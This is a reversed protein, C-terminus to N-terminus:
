AYVDEMLHQACWKESRITSPPVEKVSSVYNKKFPEESTSDRLVTIETTYKDFTLTHCVSSVYWVGDFNSNFKRLDVVGGPKIGATGTLEINASFTFKNRTRAELHGEAYSASVLNLALQDTFRSELARGLGSGRGETTVTVLNGSSDMSSIIEDNSNGAATINGFTGRFTLVRGPRMKMDRSNAVTELLHMSIQRGVARYRDFVHIHTEHLTVVYGLSDAVRVLFEWDSEESQVLRVYKFDDEPISYSYQYKEALEKVVSHLTPEEWAKTVKGKMDYSAGLCHITTLQFPSHNVEGQRNTYQPDVFVVYGKFNHGMSEQFWGVNVPANLYDTVAMPPIGAMTVKLLDHKNEGLELEVQVIRTYDVYVNGFTIDVSPSTPNGSRFIM